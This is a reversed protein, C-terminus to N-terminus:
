GPRPLKEYIQELDERSLYKLGREERWEDLASPKPLWWQYWKRQPIPPILIALTCAHCYTMYEVSIAPYRSADLEGTPLKLPPYALFKGSRCGACAKDTYHTM